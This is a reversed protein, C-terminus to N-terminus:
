KMFNIQQIEKPDADLTQQQKSLDIVIMKYHENFYNCDLFCGTIYDDGQCTAIKWINDYKRMNSKVPHYFFTKQDTM